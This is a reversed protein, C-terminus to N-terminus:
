SIRSRIELEGSAPADHLSLTSETLQYRESPLSVGDLAVEVDYQQEGNLVLTSSGADIDDDVDTNRRFSLTATVRTTERDLEFQLEVADIRYAPPRYDLRRIARPLTDRPLVFFRSSELFFVLEQS